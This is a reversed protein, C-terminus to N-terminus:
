ERAGKGMWGLHTHHFSDSYKLGYGLMRDFGIHATWILALSVLLPVELLWGAGLLPLSLAYTHALNYIVAGTKPSALYGLFSLDPTFFLLAFLWWSSGLEAYAWTAIALVVLGECRLFPRASNAATQTESNM